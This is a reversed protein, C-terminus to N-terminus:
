NVSIGEVTPLKGYQKLCLFLQEFLQEKGEKSLCLNKSEWKHILDNIAEKEYDRIITIM